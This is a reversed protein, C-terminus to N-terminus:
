WRIQGTFSTTGNGPLWGNTDKPNTRRASSRFCVDNGAYAQNKWTNNASHVTEGGQFALNNCNYLRVGIKGSADVASMRIQVQQTPTRQTSFYKIAGGSDVTGSFTGQAALATGSTLLAFMLISVILKIGRM